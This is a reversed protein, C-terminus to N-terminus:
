GRRFAAFAAEVDEDTAPEGALGEDIAELEEPSARYDGSALEADIQRAIEALDIQAEEPWREIRAMAEQLAKTTMGPVM